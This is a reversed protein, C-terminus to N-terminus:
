YKPCIDIMELFDLDDTTHIRISTFHNVDRHHAEDDKIVVAIDRLTFDKPLRWYDIAIAPAPFNEINSNGLKKLFETYSHVVEEEVIGPVAAVIELMM